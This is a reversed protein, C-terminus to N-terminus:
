GGRVVTNTLREPYKRLVKLTHGAPAVAPIGVFSEGELSFASNIAVADFAARTPYTIRFTGKVAQYQGTTDDPIYGIVIHRARSAQIVATQAGVTAQGKFNKVSVGYIIGNDGTYGIRDPM